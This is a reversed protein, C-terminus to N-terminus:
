GDTKFLLHRTAARFYPKFFAMFADESFRLEYGAAAKVIMITETRESDSSKLVLKDVLAPAAAKVHKRIEKEFQENVIIHDVSEPEWKNIIEKLLLELTAHNPFGNTKHQAVIRDAIMTTIQEQLESILKKGNLQLEATISKHLKEADAKAKKEIEAAQHRADSLLDDAQKKATALISAAEGAARAIGQDYVKQALKELHNPETNTPMKQSKETIM